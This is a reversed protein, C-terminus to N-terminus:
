GGGSFFIKKFLAFFRKVFLFIHSIITDTFFSHRLIFIDQAEPM